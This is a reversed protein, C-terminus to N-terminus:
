RSTALAIARQVEPNSGIHIIAQSSSDVQDDHKGRPFSAFEAIYTPVWAAGEPLYIQGAEVYPQMAAARAEKGGEPNIEVLGPVTKKLTNVIASGNAKDEILWKRCRPWRKTLARACLACGHCARKQGKECGAIMAITKTFDMRERVVDLLYWEAFHVGWITAVVFDSRDTEKFAADVSGVIQHLRPLVRAPHTEVTVCGKPRLTNGAPAVGDPKWFRWWALKFMGGGAPSPRQQHQGAFGDEGLGSVPKKLEAVVKETFLSPFLLEGEVTRPDRFFVVPDAAVVSEEADDVWGDTTVNEGMPRIYTVCRRDGEFETPLSLHEYGGGELLFGSLDEEHVRQGIVVFTGLAPDNVRTPMVKTWWYISEDRALKSNADKVNLPDDCTVGDGRFGTAKSGVSLCQRAGALSNKFSNVRNQAPNFEWLPGGGTGRQRVFNDQYWDSMMLDRCRISDREALEQAYSSFLNQKTPRWTWEWAPWFVAVLLSKAFGPAINILLKRMNCFSVQELHDCLADIHWNWRLRAGPDAIPWAHRVFESLSKRCKEAQIEARLNRPNVLM